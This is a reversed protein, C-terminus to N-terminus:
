QDNESWEATCVCPFKSISLKDALNPFGPTNIRPKVGAPFSILYLLIFDILFRIVYAQSPSSTPPLMKVFYLMCSCNLAFAKSIQSQGLFLM